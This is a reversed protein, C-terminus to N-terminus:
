RGLEADIAEALRYTNGRFSAEVGLVEGCHRCCYMATWFIKDFDTLRVEEYVPDGRDRCIKRRLWTRVDDFRERM